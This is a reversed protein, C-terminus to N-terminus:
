NWFESWADDIRQSRNESLRSILRDPVSVRAGADGFNGGVSLSTKRRTNMQAVTAFPIRVTAGLKLGEDRNDETLTAYSSFEWGNSFYRSLAITTGWDGALYKGADVRAALGKYGTDWHVSVFGTVADFDLAGFPDEYDRKQAYTLEAGFAWRSSAPLWLAEASVGRYQRELLGFTLGGYVTETLKRDYAGYLRDLRVSGRDYSRSDSRPTPVPPPPDITRDGALLYSLTSGVYFSPTFDYRADAFLGLEPDIEGDASLPLSVAPRITWSFGLTPEARWDWDTDSPSAGEISVLGRSATGRGPENAVAVVEDRPITFTNGPLDDFYVTVEFQTVSPPSTRTLVRVTRGVIMSIPDNDLASVGVRITRADADYRQLKIFLKALAEQTASRLSEVVRKDSAWGVIDRGVEPRPEAIPPVGGFNPPNPPSKANAHFNIAFGATNDGRAYAIFDVEDTLQYKAAFNVRSDPESVTGAASSYEAALTLGDIPTKWEIGGFISAEGQFLHSTEIRGPDLAQTRDAFVDAATAYGGLRGWGVGLNLRIDDGFSKGAVIYEASERTNSFLDEVGISIAPLFPTEDFVLYKLNLSNVDQSLGTSADDYASFSLSAELRPLAQVGLSITRVSEGFSLSAVTDGDEKHFASPTDVLGSMGNPTVLQEAFTPVATAACIALPIAVRVVTLAPFVRM